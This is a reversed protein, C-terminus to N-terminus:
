PSPDLPLAPVRHFLTHYINEPIVRCTTYVVSGWLVQHTCGLAHVGHLGANRDTFTFTICTIAEKGLDAFLCPNRLRGDGSIASSPRRHRAHFSTEGDAGSVWVGCEPGPGQMALIPICHVKNARWILPYSISSSVLM